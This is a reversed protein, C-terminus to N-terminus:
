YIYIYIYVYTYVHVYIIHIYLHNGWRSRYVNKFRMKYFFFPTRNSIKLKRLQEDWFPFPLWCFALLFGFFLQGKAMQDSPRIYWLMDYLIMEYWPMDYWTMDFWAIDYWSIIKTHNKPVPLAVHCHCAGISLEFVETAMAVWDFGFCSRTCVCVRGQLWCGLLVIQYPAPSPGLKGWCAKNLPLTDLSNKEGPSFWM